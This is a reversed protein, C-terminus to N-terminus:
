NKRPGIAQSRSASEATWLYRNTHFRVEFFVVRVFHAWQPAQNRASGRAAPRCRKQEFGSHRAALLRALWLFYLAFSFDRANQLPVFLSEQM